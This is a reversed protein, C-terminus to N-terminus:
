KALKLARALKNLWLGMQGSGGHGLPRFQLVQVPNNISSSVEEARHAYQQENNFLQVRGEGLSLFSDMQKRTRKAEGARVANKALSQQFRDKQKRKDRQIAKHTILRGLMATVRKVPSYQDYKEAFHNLGMCLKPFFFM